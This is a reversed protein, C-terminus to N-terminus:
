TGISQVSPTRTLNDNVSRVGPVARVLVNLARRQDESDIRGWLEVTGDHVTVNMFVTDAWPEARLREVIMHQIELDAPQGAAAPPTSSAALLRVIDARSVIGVLRGARTVPVRKIGRREFLDAIRAVETDESVAMVARTMVDGVLAGHSKVYEQALARDDGFLSRFWSRRRETGIDTRRLLDGESVIGLLTGDAGLVPAGSIRRATLQGAAAVVTMDPTFTVVDTTMIDKARM